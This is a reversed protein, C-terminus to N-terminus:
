VAAPRPAAATTPAPILHLYHNGAGFLLEARSKVGRCMIGARGQVCRPAVVGGGAADSSAAATVENFFLPAPRWEAGPILRLVFLSRRLQLPATLLPLLPLPLHSGLGSSAATQAAANEATFASLYPPRFTGFHFLYM